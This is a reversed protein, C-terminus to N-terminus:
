AAGKHPVKGARESAARCDACTTEDYSDTVAAVQRLWRGCWTEGSVHSRRRHMKPKSM